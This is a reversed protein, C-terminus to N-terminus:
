FRGGRRALQISKSTSYRVDLEDDFLSPPETDTIGVDGDLEILMRHQRMCFSNKKYMKKLFFFHVNIYRKERRLKSNGSFLLLATEKIFDIFYNM